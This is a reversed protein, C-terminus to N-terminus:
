QQDDLVIRLQLGVFIEQAQLIFEGSGFVADRNLALAVIASQAIVVSVDLLEGVAQERGAHAEFWVVRVKFCRLRRPDHRFYIESRRFWRRRLSQRHLVPLNNQRGRWNGTFVERCRTSRSCRWNARRARAPSRGWAFSRSLRSTLFNLRFNSQRCSKSQAACPKMEM